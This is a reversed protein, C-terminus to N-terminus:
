GKAKRLNRFFDKLLIACEDALIGGTYQPQHTFRDVAFLNVISGAAGFKPEYAGFIVEDVRSLILSGACMPCPELTVYLRCGTLRWGKLVRSAERLAIMEAHATPDKWTERMNHGRAVIEEGHVIVAGIPVEGWEMAKRAEVIAERMFREHDM